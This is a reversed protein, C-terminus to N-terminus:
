DYKAKLTKVYQRKTRGHLTALTKLEQKNLPWKPKSRPKWMNSRPGSPFFIDKLGPSKSSSKHVVEGTRDKLGFGMSKQASLMMTALVTAKLSGKAKRM